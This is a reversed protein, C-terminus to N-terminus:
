SALVKLYFKINDDVIKRIDFRDEVKMRAKHGLELSLNKNNFISTISKVYSTIDDPHHMCGDEGNTIIDQAWGINTNVVAKQLAMSEITVMGLTEALSPFVCVHANKIEALVNEYPLVSKYAVNKVAAPSMQKRMMEWTSNNGTAVDPADGGVLTLTADPFDDVIKNFIQILQFMGKKRILTGINLISYSLYDEPRENKFKNIQIGHRIVEIRSAKIKFLKASLECAFATPAIFAAATNVACKELFRNKWKQPRKEIHCFYTDSGHLRIVVPIKFKMFATIGTWDPAELLDIGKDKILYNLFRNIRMRYLYFGGIRYKKQKLIYFQIGADNFEATKTKGYVIISVTVNSRVLELALNKISTGLGGSSGIREHPYEPTLFAIHM